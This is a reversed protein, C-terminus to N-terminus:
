NYLSIGMGISFGSMGFMDDNTTPGWTSGFYEATIVPKCYRYYGTVFFEADSSIAFTYDVGLLLGLGSGRFGPDGGSDYYTM